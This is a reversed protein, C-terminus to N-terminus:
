CQLVSAKWAAGWLGKVTLGVTSVQGFGRGSDDKLGSLNFLWLASTSKDSLFHSYEVKAM